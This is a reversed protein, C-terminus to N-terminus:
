RLNQFNQKEEKLGHKKEEIVKSNGKKLQANMRQSGELIFVGTKIHSTYGKKSFIVKGELPREGSGKVPFEVQYYGKDDTKASFKGYPTSIEVL